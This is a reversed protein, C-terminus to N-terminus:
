RDSRMLLYLVIVASIAVFIAILLVADIFLQEPYLRILSDSYPFRWTGVAFFVEHFVDFARDWAAMAIMALAAISILSLKCGRQVGDAIDSRLEGNHRSALATGAGLVASIVALAFAFSTTHKVDAMHRLERESFLPCDVAGPALNWCKERPLRLSALYDIAEGNFLFYVAFPGYDIRDEIDFGYADVPFGPRQYEFQLFQESLLLRVGALALWLPVALAFYLRVVYRFARSENM